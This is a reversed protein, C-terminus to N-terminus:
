VMVKRVGQDTTRDFGMGLQQSRHGPLASSSDADLRQADFHWNYALTRREGADNERHPGPACVVGHGAGSFVAMGRALLNEMHLYTRRDAETPLAFHCELPLRREATLDLIFRPMYSYLAHRAAPYIAKGTLLISINWRMDFPAVLYRRIGTGNTSSKECVM